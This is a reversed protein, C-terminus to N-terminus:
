CNNCKMTKRNIERSNRHEGSKEIQKGTLLKNFSRDQIFPHDQAELQCLEFDYHINVTGAETNANLGKLLVLLLTSINSIALISHRITFIILTKPDFQLEFGAFSPIPYNCDAWTKMPDLLEQFGVM